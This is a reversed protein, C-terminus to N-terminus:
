FCLTEKTELMHTAAKSHRYINNCKLDVSACPQKSLIYGETNLLKFQLAPLPFHLVIM